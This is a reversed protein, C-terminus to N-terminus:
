IKKTFRGIRDRKEFKMRIHRGLGFQLCYRQVTRRPINVIKAIDKAPMGANRLGIIKETQAEHKKFGKKYLNDKSHYKRHQSVTMIELNEIRNDDKRENKHHVVEGRNLLRGLHNEVVFRHWRVMGRANAYPHEPIRM